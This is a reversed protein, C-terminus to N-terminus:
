VGPATGYAQLPVLGAVERLQQQRRQIEDLSRPREGKLDPALAEVLDRQLSHQNPTTRDAILKGMAYKMVHTSQEASQRLSATKLHGQDYAMMADSSANDDIQYYDYNQDEPGGDLRLQGGPVAPMHYSASLQSRQHQAIFRNGQSRGGISTSQSVQYSFGDHEAPRMRNVSKSTQTIGADFDALGTLLAHDEGSLTLGGVGAGQTAPVSAADYGSNMEAFADKFMAVLSADGHGRAAALDVQQLYSGVAAAQQAKNGLAAIQSMDVNVNVAGAAGSFSVKRHAGDAHLDLTQTTEPETAVKVVSHLDVSALVAPDFQLMGGLKLQPPSQAIGDVAEQFADSLKALAAREAPNLTGTTKMQVALGDDGSDLTLSVQAGSTTAISLAIRNDGQGHAVPKALAAAAAPSYLEAGNRPQRASQTIDAGDGYFRALLASGLGHLRGALSPQFFNRALLSTIKDRAPSEWQLPTADPDPGQVADQRIAALGEPSLKVGGAPAAPAAAPLAQEVALAASPAYAASRGTPSVVLNPM